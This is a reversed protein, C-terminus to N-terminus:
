GVLAKCAMWMTTIQLLFSYSIKGSGSTTTETTTPTTAPTTTTTVKTVENQDEIYKHDNCLDAECSGFKCTDPSFMHRLEKTVNVMKATIKQFTPKTAAVFGQSTLSTTGATALWGVFDKILQKIDVPDLAEMLRIYTGYQPFAAIIAQNIQDSAPNTLKFMAFQFDIQWYILGMLYENMKLTNEASLDNIATQNYPWPSSYIKNIEAYYYNSWVINNKILMYYQKILDPMPSSPFATKYANVIADFSSILANVDFTPQTAATIVGQLHELLPAVEAPVTGGMETILKGIIEGANITPFNVFGDIFVQFFKDLETTYDSLLNYFMKSFNVVLAKEMVGADKTTIKKIMSLIFDSLKTTAATDSLDTFNFSNFGAAMKNYVDEIKSKEAPFFKYFLGPVWQIMTKYETELTTVNAIKEVFTILATAFAETAANTESYQKLLELSWTGAYNVNGQALKDVLDPIANFLPDLVLKVEDPITYHARITAIADTASQKPNTIDIDGLLKFVIDYWLTSNWNTPLMSQFLGPVKEILSKFMPNAKIQSDIMTQNLFNGIFKYIDATFETNETDLNGLATFFEGVAVGMAQPDSMNFAALFMKGISPQLPKFKEMNFGMNEYFTVIGSIFEDVNKGNSFLEQLQGTSDKVFDQIAAEITTQIDPILDLLAAPDLTSDPGFLKNCDLLDAYSTSICAGYRAKVMIGALKAGLQQGFCKSNAGCTRETWHYFPIGGLSVNFGENCKLGEVTALSVVLLIASIVYAPTM